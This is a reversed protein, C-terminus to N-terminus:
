LKIGQVGDISCIIKVERGQEDIWNTEEFRLATCHFYSIGAQFHYDSLSKDTEARNLHEIGFDLLKKDYISRDQNELDILEGSENTRAEFRCTHFAMLAILAHVEPLDCYKNRTLLKALRIAEM